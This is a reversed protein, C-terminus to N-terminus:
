FDIAIDFLFTCLHVATSFAASPQELRLSRGATSFSFLGRPGGLRRAPRTARDHRPAPVPALPLHGPLDHVDGRLARLGERAGPHRLVGVGAPLGDFRARGSM